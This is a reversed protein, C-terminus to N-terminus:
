GDSLTKQFEEFRERHHQLAEQAPSFKKKEPLKILQDSLKITELVKNDDRTLYKSLQISFDNRITILLHDFMWHHSRCLSLGNRPDDNYSQSWPIVHAGEVLSKGGPITVRSGCLACTYRYNKRVALSFGAERKQVFGTRRHDTDPDPHYIEFPETVVSELQKSIEYVTNNNAGVELVQEATEKSFYHTSIVSRIQVRGDTDSMKEFLDEDIMAVDVRDNLGGLSPSSRFEEKGNRYELSWFPEM